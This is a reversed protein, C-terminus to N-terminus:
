HGDSAKAKAKGKLTALYAVVDRIEGPQLIGLMPPMVSIAATRSAIDATAITKEKGDSLRLTVSDPTEKLPAGSLVTQDRLTVTAIGFGPAIQASPNLLSELLYARDRQAGIAKLNPGVTSGTDGTAHCAICNAGLHNQVLDRGADANGGEVLERRSQGAASAAYDRAIAALAPNAAM